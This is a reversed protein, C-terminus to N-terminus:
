EPLELLREIVKAVGDEQHPDTQFKAYKLLDPHGDAMAWSRDAWKLMSFDNPNDGFTV